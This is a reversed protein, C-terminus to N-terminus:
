DSVLKFLLSKFCALVMSQRTLAFEFAENYFSKWKIRIISNCQGDLRRKEELFHLIIPFFSFSDKM